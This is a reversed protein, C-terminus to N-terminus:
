PFNLYPLIQPIALIDNTVLRLFATLRLLPYHVLKAFSYLLVALQLLLVYPITRASMNARNLHYRVHSQHM